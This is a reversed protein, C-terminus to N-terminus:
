TARSRTRRWWRRLLDWGIVLGAFVCGAALSRGAPRGFVLGVTAYALALITFALYLPM